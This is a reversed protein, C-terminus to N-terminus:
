MLVTDYVYKAGGKLLGEKKMENKHTETKRSKRIKNKIVTM